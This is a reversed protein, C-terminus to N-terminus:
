YKKELLRVTATVCTTHCMHVRCQKAVKRIIEFICTLAANNKIKNKNLLYNFFLRHMHTHKFLATFLHSLSLNLVM